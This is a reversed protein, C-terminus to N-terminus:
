LYATQRDYGGASPDRLAIAIRDLTQRQRRTVDDWAVFILRWGRAELWATRAKDRKWAIRNGHFEWGECELGIRLSPYAFDIHFPGVQHQRVPRPL